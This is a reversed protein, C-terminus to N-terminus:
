SQWWSRGSEHPNGTGKAPAATRLYTVLGSLTGSVAAVIGQPQRIAQRRGGRLWIRTSEGPTSVLWGLRGGRVGHRSGFVLRNRTNFYYYTPSKAQSAAAREQTGGEDHVVQLDDRVRLRLGRNGARVSLDVDEWYLFYEPAFGDLEAFAEASFTLCAGSLWSRWEPDGSEVWGARIRGSRLSVTSGRFFPQGDSRLVLPSVLQRPDRRVEAGLARLVAPEARADPNLAVFARCGLEAARLVGANVGAGFGVNVPLEVLEWGRQEALRRVRDLEANSSHNDVIVVRACAAAALDPPLNVDLLGASGYNVVIIGLDDQAAGPEAQILDRLRAGVGPDGGVGPSGLTPSVPGHVPRDHGRRGSPRASRATSGAEALGVLLDAYADAVSDWSYRAIAVQGARGIAAAAAQDQEVALVAAAVGGPDAFYTANLGMVERNFGVDFAIVRAGAGAARLLSPNTGGVCHGHLYSACNAYLQDLLAQDWVGGLFRVRPEAAARVSATYQDAYPASGVVVLPLRAASASYGAVIELVHNEPEFRAVVLHYGGPELGLESLRDIGAATLIPAGYAILRSPADFEDAYYDAIGQADAILADSWRVALAEASRYYRRGLRGWKARQWELGDVHTAFPIRRARLLPALPANAANFLIAADVGALAPHVVSVATHSLTELSRKRLAPLTVLRMGLYERRAPEDSTARCFVIVEHGLGVLRRGVEEVATEFGGYRAPVGRTGILAFRMGDGEDEDEGGPGTAM